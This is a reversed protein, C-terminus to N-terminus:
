STKRPRAGGRKVGSFLRDYLHLFIEAHCMERRFLALNSGFVHHLAEWRTRIEEPLDDPIPDLISVLNQPTISAGKKTLMACVQPFYREFLGTSYEMPKKIARSLAQIDDRLLMIWNEPLNQHYATWHKRTEAHLRNVTGAVTHSFKNLEANVRLARKYGLSNWQHEQCYLHHHGTEQALPVFRWCLDCKGFIDCDPEPVHKQRSLYLLVSEWDQANPRFNELEPALKAASRATEVLGHWRGFVAVHAECDIGPFAYESLWSKLRRKVAGSHLHGVARWLKFAHVSMLGNRAENEEARRKECLRVIKQWSKQADGSWQEVSLMDELRFLLDCVDQWSSDNQEKQDLALAGRLKFPLCQLVIDMSQTPSSTKLRSFIKEPSFM